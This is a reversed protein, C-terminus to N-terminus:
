DSSPTDLVTNIHDLGDIETLVAESRKEDNGSALYMALVSGLIPILWIVAVQARKQHREYMYSRVVKYTAVLNMSILALLLVWLIITLYAM